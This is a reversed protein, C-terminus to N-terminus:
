IFSCVQVSLIKVKCVRSRTPFQWVRCDPDNHLVGQFGPVQLFMGQIGSHEFCDGLKGPSFNM